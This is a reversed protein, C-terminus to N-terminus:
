PDLPHSRGSVTAKMLMDSEHSLSGRDNTLIHIISINPGRFSTVTKMISQVPIISSTHEYKKGTCHNCGDHRSHRYTQFVSHPRQINVCVTIHIYVKTTEPDSNTVVLRIIAEETEGLAEM